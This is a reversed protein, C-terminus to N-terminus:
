VQIQFVRLHDKFFHAIKIGKIGRMKFFLSGIGLGQYRAYNKFSDYFIYNSDGRGFVWYILCTLFNKGLKLFFKVPLRQSRFLSSAKKHSKKSLSPTAGVLM